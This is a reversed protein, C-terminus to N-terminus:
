GASLLRSVDAGSRKRERRLLRSEKAMQSGGAGYRIAELLAYGVVIPVLIAGNPGSKSSVLSVLLWASLALTVVVGFALKMRRSLAQLPLTLAFVRQKGTRAIRSARWAVQLARRPRGARFLLLAARGHWSPQNPNSRVIREACECAGARDKSRLLAEGLGVLAQQDDPDISLADRFAEIAGADNHAVLRASGLWFKPRELTPWRQVIRELVRVREQGTVYLSACAAQALPSAPDSRLADALLRAAVGFRTPAALEGEAYDQFGPGPPPSERIAAIAVDFRERLLTLVSAELGAYDVGSPGDGSM